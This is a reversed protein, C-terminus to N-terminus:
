PVILCAWLSHWFHLSSDTASDVVVDDFHDVPVDPNSRRSPKVQSPPIRQLHSNYLLIHVEATDSSPGFSDLLVTYSSTYESITKRGKNEGWYAYRYLHYRHHLNLAIASMLRRWVVMKIGGSAIYTRRQTTDQCGRFLSGVYMHIFTDQDEECLCRIYCYASKRKKIQAKMYELMQKESKLKPPDSFESDDLLSVM